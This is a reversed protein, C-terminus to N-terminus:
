QPKEAGKLRFMVKLEKRWEVGVGIREVQVTPGLFGLIAETTPHFELAPSVLLLRPAEKRVDVGAFYGRGTFEGRELHWRVRMWYDLAQLPLHPDASAKLELIALRGAHDVALLDLVGRQGGAFALVQSYVPERRLGADISEPHARVQSELWAEPNRRYLAQRRDPVSFTRLRAVERALGEIEGAHHERAEVREGLGFTLGQADARAFELGHVRLSLSGDTRAVQEVGSVALAPAAVPPPACPRRCTELHTDLNGIDGEDVRAVFGQPSYTLLEFRAAQRDLFPLRLCTAREEGAPLFLVLGHVTVRSERRRLYDLWILGFTLVGATDGGGAPAAIAAWGSQGQRLFARPYAPSLSHQLNAEASLEALTWGPYQRALFERFRERFVQRAGRRGAEYGAPRDLDILFLSGEKRGFHEVALEMRGPAPPRAATVRRVLNRQRDWAELTLRAGRLGIEFSGPALELVDEGPELLAPRRCSGLFREIATRLEELDSV